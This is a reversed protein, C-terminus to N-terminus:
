ESTTFEIENLYEMMLVYTFEDGGAEMTPLTLGPLGSKVKFVSVELDYDHGSKLLGPQWSLTDMPVPVVWYADEHTIPDWLWMGLADGASPDIIWTFNPNTSITQGNDSPYTFNVPNGPESIGSYDLNVTRLVTNSSNCFEFTYTGTPYDGRLGALTLYDSPSEYEWGYDEYITFLTGGAPPTVDIHHLTDPDVLDVWIEFCWPYNYPTGDQHDKCSTMYIGEIDLPSGVTVTFQATAEVNWSDNFFLRVEYDGPSSPGWFTVTGNIIGPTGSYTNDTYCWALHADNGAGEAYLAIWDKANGEAGLFNVEIVEGEQYVPKSTELLPNTTIVTIDTWSGPNTIVVFGRFTGGTPSSGVTAYQKDPPGTINEWNDTNGSWSGAQCYQGDSGRISDLLFEERAAIVYYDYDGWFTATEGPSEGLKTYGAQQDINYYFEWWQTEGTYDTNGAWVEYTVWPRGVAFECESESYKGVWYEIGDSNYLSDGTYVGYGNYFCLCAEWFGDTLAVSDWSTESVPFNHEIEEDTEEKELWVNIGAASPDTCPQWTFKVPSNVSGHHSPYTFVPEQTPQPIPDSTNPLGFWVDTKNWGGGEYYVKITYWGDGFDQLHNINAQERYYEWYYSGEEADYEHTTWTQTAEDWNNVINPIQFTQGAPTFFEVGTVMGDTEIEIGFGYTLDSEDGPDEYNWGNDIAIFFVHDSIILEPGTVTFETTAEVNWSDNFFLRAEYDGPTPPGWFTVTDNVIGPTGNYTNDTYCWALYTDNGGGKPFLAIWDKANGAAGLFDVVIVEGVPYVPESTTISAAPEDVSFQDTAEVKWSDNFFLRAEYNGPAPLGGSFTVTGSDTGDTYSWALYTNGEFLGIWDKANGEAGSFDVM